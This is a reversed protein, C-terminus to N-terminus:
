RMVTQLVTQFREIARQKDLVAEFYRRGATGLRERQEPDRALDRIASAASESEDPTFVLGCGADRVVAGAESGEPGIFIVPRGVAMISYVKSPVSLGEMDTRLSVLHIDGASLSFRLHQQSQYDIFRLNTLGERRGREELRVKGKGYGMFVFCVRSMGHLSRIVRLLSDADHVVGLNGSYMVVLHGNLHHEKRFWNEHAAVPGLAEGDAWNPLRVVQEQPIGARQLHQEMCRGVVIIRHSARLSWYAIRTLTRALWGDKLIGARVANEPFVDQLWSITKWGKLPRLFAALFSLLPPDSWVILCDINRSRVTAWGASIYFSVYDAFRGLAARRGFRTSWVRKVTVGKYCADPPGIRKGDLYGARGTVVTVGMGQSALEEALDTLLRATASQDPYFFRNIFLLRM